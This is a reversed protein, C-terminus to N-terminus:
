GKSHFSWWMNQMPTTERWLSNNCRNAYTNMHNNQILSENIEKFQHTKERAHTMKHCLTNELLVLCLWKNLVKFFKFVMIEKNDFCTCHYDLDCSWLVEWLKSMLKKIFNREMNFANRHNIRLIFEWIYQLTVMRYSRKWLLQM